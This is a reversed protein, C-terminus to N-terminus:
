LLIRSEIIECIEKTIQGPTEPLGHHMVGLGSLSVAGKGESYSVWVVKRRVVCCDSSRYICYVLLSLPSGKKTRWPKTAWRGIRSYQPLLVKYRECAAQPMLNEAFRRLVADYEKRCHRLHWLQSITQDFLHASQTSERGVMAQPEVLELLTM